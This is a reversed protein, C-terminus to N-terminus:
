TKEDLPSDRPFKGSEQRPGLPLRMHRVADMRSILAHVADIDIDGPELSRLRIM